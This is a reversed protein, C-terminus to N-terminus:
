GSRMMGRPMVNRPSASVPASSILRLAARPKRETVRGSRGWRMPSGARNLPQHSGIMAAHASVSVTMLRWTPLEPM